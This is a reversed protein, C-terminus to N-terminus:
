RCLVVGQDVPDYQGAQMPQPQKQCPAGTLSKDEDKIAANMTEHLHVLRPYDWGFAAIEQTAEFVPKVAADRIRCYDDVTGTEIYSQALAEADLFADTIGHATAPDKFCAADGVLAWGNGTRQRIHGDAGLFRHMKGLPETTRVHEALESDFADLISVTGPKGGSGFHVKAHERPCAAFVCHAGHNTPIAGASMGPAFFWRYGRNMIGPVYSYHVVTRDPATRAQLSGVAQAVVSQRGDAGILLDASIEAESGDAQLLRAGTVRGAANRYCGLFGTSFRVDAGTETAAELLLKDLVTRRPAFLGPMDNDPRIPITIARPGYHFAVERVVPTGARLLPAILGWRALLRVAPRMLAHTSLTDDLRPARDILLVRAGSAALRMATAAGAVRAGVILVDFHEKHM